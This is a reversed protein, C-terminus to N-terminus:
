RMQNIAVPASGGFLYTALVLVLIVLLACLWQRTVVGM